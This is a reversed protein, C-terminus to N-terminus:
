AMTRRIAGDRIHKGAIEYDKMSDIELWGGFVPVAKLARGEYVLGQLLDTMFAKEVPKPQRWAQQGERTMRVANRYSDKLIELGKRTFKILGIYQADIDDLSKPKQGINAINGDRDIKLTEADSLPDAFRERWYTKWETDVVVSIDAASDVLAQLVEANYIIDAYSVVLDDTFEAEARWLSAVMNTAAYSENVYSKVGPREVLHALYGKVVAIDEIGCKKLAGIQWDLLPRSAIEVLCKPKHETLPRLRSGEGAALIIGKM